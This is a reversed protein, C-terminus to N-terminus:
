VNSIGKEEKANVIISFRVCDHLVHYEVKDEPDCVLVELKYVDQLTSVLFRPGLTNTLQLASRQLSLLVAADTNTSDYKSYEEDVIKKRVWEAQARKRGSVIDIVYLIPYALLACLLYLCVCITGYTLQYFVGICIFVNCDSNEYRDVPFSLTNTCAFFRDTFVSFMPRLPKAEDIMRYFQERRENASQRASEVEVKISELEAPSLTNASTNLNEQQYQYSDKKRSIKYIENSNKLYYESSITTFLDRFISIRAQPIQTTDAM